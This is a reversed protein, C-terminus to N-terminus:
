VKKVFLYIYKGDKRVWRSIREGIDVHIFTGYFGLGSFGIKEAALYLKIIRKKQWAAEIALDAALGWKPLHFSDRHGNQDKNWSPCRLGSLVFIKEDLLDRTKQIKKVLELGIIGHRKGSCVLDPCKCFFEEEKFNETLNSM